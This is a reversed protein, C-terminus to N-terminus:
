FNNIAQSSPKNVISPVAYIDDIFCDKKIGVILMPCMGSDGNQIRKNLKSWHMTSHDYKSAIRQWQGKKDQAWGLQDFVDQLEDCRTIVVGVSIERCKHLVCFKTLDSLREKKNWQVECAVRGKILDVPLHKPNLIVGDVRTAMATNMVGWGRQALYNGFRGEIKSKRGDPNVIESRFLQFQELCGLLEKFERPFDNALIACAHHRDTIQFRKRIRTPILELGM